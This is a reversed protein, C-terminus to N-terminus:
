PAQMAATDGRVGALVARNYWPVAYGPDRELAATFWREAEDLAGTELHAVGLNNAAMAGPDPTWTWAGLWIAHRLGPRQELQDLFRRSAAISQRFNCKRLENMGVFLDRFLFGQIRGPILLALLLVLVWQPHDRSSSILWLVPIGLVVLATGFGLRARTARTM